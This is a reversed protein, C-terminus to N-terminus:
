SIDHLIVYNDPGIREKIANACGTANYAQVTICLQATDVIIVCPSHAPTHRGAAIARSEDCLINGKVMQRDVNDVM